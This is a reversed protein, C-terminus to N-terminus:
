DSASPQEEASLARVMFEVLTRTRQSLFQAEPYVVYIGRPNVTYPQLIQQLQGSELAPGAMFDPVGIVGLCECAADILFGGDHSNLSARLQVNIPKGNKTVFPWQPRITSGYQIIRDQLPSM